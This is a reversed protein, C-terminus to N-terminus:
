AANKSGLLLETNITPPLEAPASTRRRFHEEKEVPVNAAAAL